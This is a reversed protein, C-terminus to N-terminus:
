AIHILRASPAVPITVSLTGNEQKWDLKTALKTPFLCSVKAATGVLDRLPIELTEDGGARRWVAVYRNAGARLGFVLWDQHWDRLGLPWFPLSIRIDERISKYVQMGETVLALQAEDLLDIRGSLHVRGLLSNVVCLANLEDSYEPQPYAWTASQEPAVATAIAASIGAYLVPDQQDSTSQISHAGLTHYDLRMAGSSCSELVLEPFRDYLAHIWALYARRHGLMGDGPSTAGNADTGQTVDINYDLKFYGVGYNTVLDDVIGDLRKTVAPHRFDLQYRGQEAVRVGRRQFYAEPPLLNQTVVPSNVGIVEPELWLGPIMGAARIEQLLAKLGGENPFRWSAPKWEGVTYWWDPAEAYWGADLIFYESGARRAPEILARVKETTPDGKLCNMYDNFILPLHVNDAHSRRMHRRYQTFPVFVDELCGEVVALATTVSEFTEGPALEKMWQHDQDTPGGAVVYLGHLINGLEWRWAGSHEIQWAYCQKGDKRVLAGMPLSSVTSFTGINSKVVAARTGPRDFDSAGVEDMGMDPLSFAKWQAERFNTNNAIAVEYEDWWKEIGRNLYGLSLSAAAQLLINASGRNSVFTTSRLVPIDAYTCFRSRVELKAASDLDQTIIELLFAEGESWETHSVYVLRHSTPSFILRESTGLTSGEGLLRIQALPLAHELEAELPLAVAAQGSPRVSQLWVHKSSDVIFDVQLGSPRWRIWTTEDELRM